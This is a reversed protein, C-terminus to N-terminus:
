LKTKFIALGVLLKAKTPSLKSSNQKMLANYISIPLLLGDDTNIELLLIRESNDYKKNIIELKKNGYYSISIGYSNRRQLRREM